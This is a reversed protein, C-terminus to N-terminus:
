KLTSSKRISKSGTTSIPQAMHPKLICIMSVRSSPWARSVTAFSAAFSSRSRRARSM